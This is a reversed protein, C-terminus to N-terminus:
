FPAPGLSAKKRRKVRERKLLSAFNVEGRAWVCVRGSFTDMEMEKILM